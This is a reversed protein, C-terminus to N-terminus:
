LAKGGNQTPTHSALIVGSPDNYGKSHTPCKWGGFGNRLQDTRICETCRNIRRTDLWNRIYGVALQTAASEIIQPVGTSPKNALSKFLASAMKDRLAILKKKLNLM